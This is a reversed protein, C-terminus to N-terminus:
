SFSRTAQPKRCGSPEVRNAIAALASAGAAMAMIPPIQTIAEEAISLCGMRQTRQTRKAANEAAKQVAAEMQPVTPPKCLFWVIVAAVAGLASGFVFGQLWHFTATGYLTGTMVLAAVGGAFSGGLAKWQYVTGYNLANGTEGYYDATMAATMPFNAGSLGGSIIACIAFLPANHEIGCVYTLMQFVVNLSYAGAM